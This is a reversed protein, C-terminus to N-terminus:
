KTAASTQRSSARTSADATPLTFYFTSGEGVRSEAWIKGGHAEVICKSIYLGLGLGSRTRQDAFQRFRDFIAHLKEPAIGPGTDAVAFRIDDELLQVLLHIRGGQPTFKLANGVLNALVQLIREHDYRALLPGGEIDARIWTGKASALPQFVDVTERVLEVTDHRKPVVALRGAEISVIDVLDGALRAMRSTYRRIREADRRIADHVREECRINMLSEASLAVGGLMNRLDHSVMALFDDRSGVAADALERERGLHQDTHARELAVLATLARRLAEREGSLSEDDAGREQRVTDDEEQRNREVTAWEASTARSSRLKEDARGRAHALVADARERANAVVADAAEEYAASRKLLEDDAKRRERDLSEDTEDREPKAHRTLAM